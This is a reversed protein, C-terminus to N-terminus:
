DLNRKKSELYENLESAAAKWDAEIEEHNQSQFENYMIGASKQIVKLDDLYPDLALSLLLVKNLSTDPNVPLINKFSEGLLLNTELNSIESESLRSLVGFYKQNIYDTAQEFKYNDM